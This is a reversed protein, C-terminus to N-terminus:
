RGDPGRAAKEWEAETPLRYTRGTQAALWQCYAYAAYWSVSVVPLREDGSWQADDWHFPQTIDRDMRWRWGAETWWRAEHYGGGEIFARFEGVTVPYKGIRFDPLTATHEDEDCGM